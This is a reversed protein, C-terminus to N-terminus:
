LILLVMLSHEFEIEATGIETASTLTAGTYTWFTDSNTEVGAQIRAVADKRFETYADDGKFREWGEATVIYIGNETTDTQDKVLVLDDESVNFADVTVGLM